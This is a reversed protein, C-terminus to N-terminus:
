NKHLLVLNDYYKAQAIIIYPIVYIGAIGFTFITLLIWGIFKFNFVLYDWKYGAMLTRSEKLSELAGYDKNDVIVYYIQSYMLALIVGPIIFIISGITILISMIIIALLITGFRDFYAFLSKISKNNGRVIDLFYEYSGITLPMLLLSSIITLIKELDSGAEAIKLIVISFPLTILEILLLPIWIEFLKGSIIYRANQRILRHDM